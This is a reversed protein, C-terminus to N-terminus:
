WRPRGLLIAVYGNAAEIRKSRAAARVQGNLAFCELNRHCELIPESLQLVLLPEPSGAAAKAQFLTICCDKDAVVNKGSCQANFSKSDKKTCDVGM